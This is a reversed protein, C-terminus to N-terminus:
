AVFAQLVKFSRNEQLEEVRAFEQRLVAEYPLQRNAVMVFRGHRALSQRAVRIFQQGLDPRSARSLGHFPPNSILVDFTRGLGQTVDHWFFELPVKAEHLNRRALELATSQVEYLAVSQIGKCQRLLRAVLYGNGAGLDAARGRLDAPLADALLASAPDIHKASFIGARTLLGSDQQVQICDLALWDAQLDLDIACASKERSWFVRCKNKTDSAVMGVLKALDDQASKAGEDNSVCAVIRGDAACARLAKAYLARAEERSRSPLILVLSFKAQPLEDEDVLAEAFPDALPRFPQTVQMAGVDFQRLAWGDRGRLFLVEEAGPWQLIGQQFPRLLTILPADEDRAM